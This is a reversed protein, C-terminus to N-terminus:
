PGPLGRFLTAMEIACLAADYGKNGRPGGARDLAQEKTLCALVGHIVPVGTDLAARVLGYTAGKAVLDFHLTEHRIVCGLAIVAKYRGTQALRKAAVPLELSGPVWAVDVEEQSVGHERFAQLAGELLRRTVDENFRAVVVAFSMGQGQCVGEYVQGM